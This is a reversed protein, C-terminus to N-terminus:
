TERGDQGPVFRAHCNAGEYGCNHDGEESDQGVDDQDRM